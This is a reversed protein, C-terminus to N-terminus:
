DRRILTVTLRTSAALLANPTGVYTNVYIKDGVNLHVPESISCASDRYVDLMSQGIDAQAGGYPLRALYFTQPYSGSAFEGGPDSGISATAFRATFWGAELCTIAANTLDFELSTGLNVIQDTFPMRRVASPPVDYDAILKISCLSPESKRVEENLAVEIGSSGKVDIIHRDHRGGGIKVEQGLAAPAVGMYPLWVPMSDGQILVYAKRKEKDIGVSGDPAIQVTAISESPRMEEIAERAVAKMKDALVRAANVKSM